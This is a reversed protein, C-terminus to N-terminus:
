IFVFGDEMMITQLTEHNIENYESNINKFLEHDDFISLDFMNHVAVLENYNKVYNTNESVWKYFRTYESQLMYGEGEEVMISNDMKRYKYYIQITEHLSTPNDTSNYDTGSLIIIQKFIPMTMQLETLILTTDYLIVTHNLLSIHRLVRKCGYVFMDMDDTLCGWAQGTNVLYACLNDAEGPADLYKVGYSDFLAKTKHKDCNKIRVFRRKLNTMESMINAKLITSEDMKDLEAKLENYKNEFVNKQLARKNIEDTKEPPSKGDFIFTPIINYKRLISILLYMNEMLAQEGIFKYLYISTDIVIHKGSLQELHTKQIANNSCNDAFFRNLLKIGM